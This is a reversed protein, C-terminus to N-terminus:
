FLINYDRINIPILHKYLQDEYIHIKFKKFKYEDKYEQTIYNILEGQKGILIGPRALTIYLTYDNRLFKKKLEMKTIKMNTITDYMSHYSEDYDQKKNSTYFRQVIFGFRKAVSDNTIM